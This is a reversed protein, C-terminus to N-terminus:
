LAFCSSSRRIRLDDSIRCFSGRVGPCSTEITMNYIWMANVLIWRHDSLKGHRGFLGSNLAVSFPMPYVCLKRAVTAAYPYLRRNFSRRVSQRSGVHCVHTFRFPPSYTLYRQLGRGPDTSRNTCPVEGSDNNNLRAGPVEYHPRGLTEISLRLRGLAAPTVGASM